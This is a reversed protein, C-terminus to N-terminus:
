IVQAAMRFGESCDVSDVGTAKARPLHEDRGPDTVAVLCQAELGNLEDIKRIAVVIWRILQANSVVIGFDGVIPFNLVFLHTNQDHTGAAHKARVELLFPRLVFNDRGRGAIGIDAIGRLYAGKHFAHLGFPDYEGGGVGVDVTAFVIAVQSESDVCLPSFVLGRQL